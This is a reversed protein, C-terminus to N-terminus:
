PIRLMQATVIERASNLLFFKSFDSACNQLLTSTPDGGIDVQV